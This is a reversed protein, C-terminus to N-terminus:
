SNYPYAPLLGYSVKCDFHAGAGPTTAAHLRRMAVSGCGTSGKVRGRQARDEGLGRRRRRVDRQRGQQATAAAAAAAAAGEGQLCTAGTGSAEWTAVGVARLMPRVPSATVYPPRVGSQWVVASGRAPTGGAAAPFAAPAVVETGPPAVSV